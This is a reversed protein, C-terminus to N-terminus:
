NTPNFSMVAILYVVAMFLIIFLFLAFANFIYDVLRMRFESKPRM